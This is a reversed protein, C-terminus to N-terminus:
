SPNEWCGLEEGLSAHLVSILCCVPDHLSGPDLASVLAGPWALVLSSHPPSLCVSPSPPLCVPLSCLCFTPSLSPSLDERARGTLM